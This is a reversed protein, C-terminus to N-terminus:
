RTAISQWKRYGFCAIVTYIIYLTAYLYIGKYIYLGVCVADVMIWAIWQEIYKKALLWMGVISLSTTFADAIPVTSDTMYRLIAYLIIWLIIGCGISVMLIRPTIHRIKISSSIEQPIQEEPSSPTKHKKEPHRTWIIYGYIAILFYYINIGFDAYLGKKFYLWMSILPMIVSVLWLRPDAHYEWWIYLIGTTFGLVELIHDWPLATVSNWDM